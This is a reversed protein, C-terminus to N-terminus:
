HCNMFQRIREVVVMQQEVTLEAFMPLSLMRKAARESVPYDGQKYGCSKYARQLHLPVPYHLGTSVGKDLLFKQLQDRRETEIVYLHNVPRAWLPVFPITLGDVKGLLKNYRGAHAHRKETWEALHKLKVRLFGAQIADLRGNYGEMDHYYKQAQGHDRIMRVQKAIAEDDTTLAGAEGCAGLNKGPYFSFAAALGMAGANEWCQRKESFYQAGHAQCSDEILTLKYDKAISRISDMDAPQGYLHVPVVAKVCDRENPKCSQLYELLKEPDMNYTKADVDVFVPTAGTQSIAETTAIFTNPVTIVKDGPGIGAAMLAFRLADTGSNVGVCYKTGVFKAFEEEFAEVQPGGIFSATRLASRFVEILEEELACQQAPLDLFPITPTPCTSHPM